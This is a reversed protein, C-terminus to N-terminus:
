KKIKCEIKISVTTNSCDNEERCAEVDVDVDDNKETPTGYLEGTTENIKLFDDYESTIKFTKPRGTTIPMSKNEYLM